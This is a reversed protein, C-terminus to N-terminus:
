RKVVVNKVYRGDHDHPGTNSHSAYRHLFALTRWMDESEDDRPVINYAALDDLMEQSFWDPRQMDDELQANIEPIRAYLNRGPCSTSAGSADRHGGTFKEPWWGREYGIRALEVVASLAAQSPHVTDYNGLVCIAHSVTNHGRTHGGAVGPGRGEFVTGEHNILFSYAIDSWGRKDVHFDQIARVRAAGGSPSATHHLWLEATPTEIQNTYRPPRADWESRSVITLSM